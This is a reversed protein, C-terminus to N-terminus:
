GAWFRRMRGGCGRQNRANLAEQVEEGAEAAADFDDDAWRRAGLTEPIENLLGAIGLGNYLEALRARSLVAMFKARDRQVSTCGSGSFSAM